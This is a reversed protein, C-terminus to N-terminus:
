PNVVVKAGVRVRSYLDTVDENTLRICGSSVAQGITWPESTGHIRYLTSGIYLARAGLPNDPGGPMFAPLDPVRKRMAAPPTWGPWEAKRTVRHTGSWRFGDRGVGVGYRLATGDDQVLYLRRESTEVIVTGPAHPGNYAVTQRPIASSARRSVQAESADVWQNTEPLYIRAASAGGVASLAMLGSLALIAFAKLKNM